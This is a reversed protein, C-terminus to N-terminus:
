ATAVSKRITDTMKGSASDLGDIVQALLATQQSLLTSEKQFADILASVRKEQAQQHGILAAIKKIDDDMFI